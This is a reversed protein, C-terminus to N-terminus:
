SQEKNQWYRLCSLLYWVNGHWLCRDFVFLGAIGPHSWCGAKERGGGVVGGVILRFCDQSNAAGTGKPQPAQDGTKTSEQRKLPCLVERVGLDVGGVGKGRESYNKQSGCSGLKFSNGM